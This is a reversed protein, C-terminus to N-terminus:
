QRIETDIRESEYVLVGWWKKMSVKYYGYAGAHERKHHRVHGSHVYELYGRNAWRSLWTAASHKKIGLAKALEGPTIHTRQEILEFAERNVYTKM